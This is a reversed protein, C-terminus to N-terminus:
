IYSTAFISVLSIETKALTTNSLKTIRPHKSAYNLKMVSTEARRIM